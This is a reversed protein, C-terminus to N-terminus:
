IKESIEFPLFITLLHNSFHYITAPSITPFHHCLPLPSTVPM